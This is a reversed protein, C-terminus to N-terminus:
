ISTCCFHVGFITVRTAFKLSFPLPRFSTFPFTSVYLPSHSIHRFRAPKLGLCMTCWQCFISSLCAGRATGSVSEIGHLSSKVCVSMWWESFDSLAHEVKSSSDPRWLLCRKIKHLQWITCISDKQGSSSGNRHQRLVRLMKRLLTLGLVGALCTRDM